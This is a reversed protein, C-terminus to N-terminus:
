GENIIVKLKNLLEEYKRITESASLGRRFLDKDYQQGKEDRVRFVDPSLEDILIIEKGKRGFELKFDMLELGAKEFLEKLYENVKLSTERIQRLEDRTLLGAAVPDDEALLPDHLEDSKYHIEFIPIRLREGKEFLPLRKLLSGWAVNRVIFELPIPEVKEVVIGEDLCEILHTKVGKSELYRMLLCTFEKCIRGKGEVREVKKGDFASMEDKFKMLLRGNEEFLVKSKGEYVKKM